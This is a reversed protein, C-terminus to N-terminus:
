NEAKVKAQIDGCIADEVSLVTTLALVAAYFAARMVRRMHVIADAKQRRSGEITPSASKIWGAPFGGEKYTSWSSKV